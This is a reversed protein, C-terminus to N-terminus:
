YLILTKNMQWIGIENILLAMWKGPYARQSTDTIEEPPHNLELKIQGIYKVMKRLAAQLLTLLAILKTPTNM